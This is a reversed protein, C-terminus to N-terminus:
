GEGKLVNAKIVIKTQKPDTNATITVNKSQAGEKKGPSFVVKIESQAGPAIPEKPYEPVTCGCSGVANSIVLPEDGTNTFEFIHENKTDQYIDGYDHENEAFTIATAPLVPAANETSNDIALPDVKLEGEAQSHDHGDHSDHSGENSNNYILYGVGLVAVLALGLSVNQKM